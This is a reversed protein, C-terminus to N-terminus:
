IEDFTIGKIDENKISNIIINYIKEYDVENNILPINRFKSINYLISDIDNIDFKKIGYYTYLIDPYLFSLKNLIHFAIKEKPLVEEKIISMSALNYAIENNDFKPWLVGPTDLLEINSNIKLLSINKTIGPKNGVQLVGKNAIKNILSSKGVNSVGIVIARIKKSLLGKQKRKENEDKMVLNLSNIVENTINNNKESLIVKYNMSEYYKKWKLTKEKDCLDYKTFILIKTKNKTFEDIDKVYSSLPIRADLVLIVVDVLNIKENIKRKAKAMHGPYYNISTKQFSKEENSM